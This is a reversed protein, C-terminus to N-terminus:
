KRFWLVRDDSVLEIESIQRASLIARKLQYEQYPFTDVYPIFIQTNGGKAPRGYPDHFNDAVTGVIAHTGAPIKAIALHQRLNDPPTALGSADSWYKYAVTNGLAADITARWVCCFFFRGIAKSGGGYLRLLNTEQPLTVAEVNLAPDFSKTVDDYDVLKVADRLYVRLEEHDLDTSKPRGIEDLVQYRRIVSSLSDVFNGSTRQAVTPDLDEPLTLHIKFGDSEQTLFFDKRKMAEALRGTAQDKNWTTIDRPLLTRKVRDLTRPDLNRKRVVEEIARPLHTEVVSRELVQGVLPTVVLLIALLFMLWRRPIAIPSM